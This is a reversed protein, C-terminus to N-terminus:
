HIILKKPNNKIQMIMKRDTNITQLSASHPYICKHIAEHDHLLFNNVELTRLKLIQLQMYLYVTRTHTHTNSCVFIYM